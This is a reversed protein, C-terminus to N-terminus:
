SRSEKKLLEVQLKAVRPNSASGNMQVLRYALVSLKWDFVVGRASSKFIRRFNTKLPLGNAMCVDMARKVSEQLEEVSEFGMREAAESAYFVLNEEAKREELEHYFNQEPFITVSVQM